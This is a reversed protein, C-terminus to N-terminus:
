TPLDFIHISQDKQAFQDPHEGMKHRDSVTVVRRLAIWAVGEVNGYLISGDVARPFEYLEGADRWTWSSEDFDGVWLMSKEQSATAVRHDNVSMASYDTFPVTTPLKLAGVHQWLKKTKKGRNKRCIM